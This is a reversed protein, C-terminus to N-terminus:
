RVAWPVQEFRASCPPGDAYTVDFAAAQTPAPPPLRWVAASRTGYRGGHLCLADPGRVGHDALIAALARIVGAPAAHGPEVPWLGAVELLTRARQVKPESEAADFPENTIIHCGPALERPRVNGEEVEILHLARGDGCVVHFPNFPEELRELAAVMGDASRERLLDLCLLGRSRRHPDPPKPGHRNTIGVWVGARNAGMWTGGAVEDRPALAPPDDM